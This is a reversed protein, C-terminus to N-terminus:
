NVPKVAVDEFATSSTQTFAGTLLNVQFVGEAGVVYGKGANDDISLGVNGTMDRGSAGIDTVAGTSPDTSSYLHDTTASYLYYTNTATYFAVGSVAISFATDTGTVTGAAPDIRYNSGTASIFRIVADGSQFTMGGSTGDIALPTNNVVACTGDIPSIQYLKLDTGIGFLVGDSQRVAIDAISATLNLTSTIANGSLVNITRMHTSDLLAYGLRSDNGGSSGGCGFALALMAGAILFLMLKKM